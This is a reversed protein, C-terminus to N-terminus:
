KLNRKCMSALPCTQVAIGKTRERTMISAKEIWGTGSIPGEEVTPAALFAIVIQISRFIGNIKYQGLYEM